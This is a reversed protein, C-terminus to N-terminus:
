VMSVACRRRSRLERVMGGRAPPIRLLLSLGHRARHPTRNRRPRRDDATPRRGLERHVRPPHRRPLFPYSAQEVLPLVTGAPDSGDSPVLFWQRPYHVPLEGKPDAEGGTGDSLILPDGTPSWSVDYIEKGLGSGQYALTRGSGDRRMTVVSEVNDAPGYVVVALRSGNPSPVVREDIVAGGRFTALKRPKAGPKQGYVWKNGKAWFAWGSSSLTVTDYRTGRPLTGLRRLHTGDTRVANLEGQRCVCFLRKGDRSLAATGGEPDVPMRRRLLQPRQGNERVSWLQAIHPEPSGVTYYITGAAANAAGALVLAAALGLLAALLSRAGTAARIM